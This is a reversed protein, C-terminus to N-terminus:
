RSAPARAWCPPATTPRVRCITRCPSMWPSALLRSRRGYAATVQIGRTGVEEQTSFVFWLDNKANKIQSLASILVACGSRNDLYRSFVKGNQTYCPSEYVCADGIQVM